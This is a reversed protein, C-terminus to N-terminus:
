EGSLFEEVTPEHESVKYEWGNGRRQKDVQYGGFRKKRLHRLQASISAEPYNLAVAIENLTKWGTSPLLMYNRIASHQKRIRDGDLLEDYAPGFTGTTKM